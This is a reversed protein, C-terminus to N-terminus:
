ACIVSGHSALNACARRSRELVTPTSQVCKAGRAEWCKRSHERLVHPALLFFAQTAKHAIKLVIVKMIVAQQHFRAQRATKAFQIQSLERYARTNGRKVSSAPARQRTEKPRRISAPRAPRVHNVRHLAQRCLTSAQQVCDATQRHVTAQPKWISGPMAIKAFMQEYLESPRAINGPRVPLVRHSVTQELWLRTNGLLVRCARM